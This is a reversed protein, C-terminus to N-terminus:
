CSWCGAKPVLSYFVFVFATLSLDEMETQEAKWMKMNLPLLSQLPPRKWEVTEDRREERM